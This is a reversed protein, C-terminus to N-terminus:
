SGPAWALGAYRVLGQGNPVAGLLGKAALSYGAGYDVPIVPAQDQVIAQAQDFAQQMSTSDTSALAKTIAADFDASTWRGFNNTKGSGLLLGLFDNAGPYDAVWDMEWMAPPDSLLRDNYTAWDEIQYDIDIGLNDHLQRIIAGDLTAGGTVLTIRPFGVGNPFGAAALESKATALDFKPGYDSTSHGPVGIPVMGTAPVELPDSLLGVIRSWDIGMQFARRVHVDNFPAKSTDFGYFEVSPSPEIRLSPGLTPDYAIWSADYLSIPTYDLNGAQFESVPSKGGISSLLHVTGIVPKGAWYHSNATLTTETSTVASVVYAGSGVFSGPALLAPNSDIDPPVVALTPSSAIAPFDAAPSVLDVEVDMSDTAKLGVASAGGTGERYARAGVVDDLLSALQSPQAPALVRMWSSVVDGASLASGDSFELGSRLHFLVQKGSDQTEWTAALAPQVRLSIDISTLSEFVQSVIQASGADSQVAPDLSAASAGLVTVSTRAADTALPRWAAGLAVALALVAATAVILRRRPRDTRHARASPAPFSHSM